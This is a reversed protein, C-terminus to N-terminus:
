GNDRSELVISHTCDKVGHAPAFGIAEFFAASPEDLTRLRVVRFGGRADELARTVLIRGVGNRRLEPLVYLRRLRGFTSDKAYPDRNMGCVGVLRGHIRAEYFAEGPKSFRNTGREWDEVLWRLAIFDEKVASGLLEGTLDEPLSEVRSVDINIHM